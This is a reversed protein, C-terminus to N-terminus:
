ETSENQAEAQKSVTLETVLYNIMRDVIFKMAEVEDYVGRWHEVGYVIRIQGDVTVPVSEHPANRISQLASESRVNLEELMAKWIKSSRKFDKLEEISVIENNVM